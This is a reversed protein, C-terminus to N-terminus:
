QAVGSVCLFEKHGAEICSLFTHAGDGEAAEAGYLFLNQMTGSETNRPRKEVGVIWQVCCTYISSFNLHCFSFCQTIYQLIYFSNIFLNAKEAVLSTNM